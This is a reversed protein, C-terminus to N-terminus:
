NEYKKLIGHMNQEKDIEDIDKQGSIIDENLELIATDVHKKLEIIKEAYEHQKGHVIHSVTDLLSNLKNVIYLTRKIKVVFNKYDTQAILLNLDVDIEMSNGDKDNFEYGGAGAELVLEEAEIIPQLASAFYYSLYWIDGYEFTHEILSLIGEIFEKEEKILDTDKIEHM